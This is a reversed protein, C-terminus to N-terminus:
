RAIFHLADLALVIKLAYLQDYQPDGTAGHAHAHRGRMAGAGPASPRFHVLLFSTILASFEERIRMALYGDRVDASALQDLSHFVQSISDRAGIGRKDRVRNALGEIRPLLVSVASIYDAAKYREIGRELFRRDSAFPETAVWSALMMDLESVGVAAVALAEAAAADGREYAVWMARWPDPLLIPTPCWGDAAMATRVATEEAFVGHMFGRLMEQAVADQVARMVQQRTGENFAAAFGSTPLFNFYLAWVGAEARIWVFGDLAMDVGELSFERLDFMDRLSVTMTDGPSRGHFSAGYAPRVAAVVQVEENLLVRHREPASRPPFVILAQRLPLLTEEAACAQLRRIMDPKIWVESIQKFTTNTDPTSTRVIGVPVLGARTRGKGLESVDQLNEPLFEEITDGENTGEVADPGVLIGAPPEYMM